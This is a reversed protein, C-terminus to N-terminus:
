LKIVSQLISNPRLWGIYKLTSFEPEFLFCAVTSAESFVNMGYMGQHYYRATVYIEGNQVLANCFTLNKGFIKEIKRFEKCSERLEGITVSFCNDAGHETFTIIEDEVDLIYNKGGYEVYNQANLKKVLEAIQGDDREGSLYNVAYFSELEDKFLLMDGSAYCLRYDESIELDANVMELTDSNIINFSANDTSYIILNEFKELSVGNFTWGNYSEIHEVTVFRFLYTKLTSLDIYGFCYCYTYNDYSDDVNEVYYKCIFFFNNGSYEELMYTFEGTNSKYKQAKLESVVVDTFIVQKKGHTAAGSGALTYNGYTPIRIAKNINVLVCSSFFIAAILILVFPIILKRKM